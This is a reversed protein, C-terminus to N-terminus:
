EIVPHHPVATRPIQGGLRPDDAVEVGRRFPVFGSRQYFEVAGQHDLSCTHVWFRRIPRSWARELARNMLWRGAGKGLVSEDLGFFALEGEGAVRFDLELLGVDRGEFRAAFFDVAPDALIAQVEAVPRILRSFWMWREGLLRYVALYRTVDDRGIPELSFGDVGPPDPKRPPPALMELSTVVAAIKGPPLDTTGNLSIAITQTMANPPADSDPFASSAIM